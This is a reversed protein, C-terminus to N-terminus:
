SQEGNYNSARNGRALFESVILLEDIYVNPKRDHSEFACETMLKALGKLLDNDTKRNKSQQKFQYVLNTEIMEKVQTSSDNEFFSQDPLKHIWDRILYTARRSLTGDAIYEALQLLIYISSDQLKKYQNKENRRFWKSTFYSTGGSRKMVAISYSDRGANKARKEAARLEILVKNLPTMHHAIVAGCSATAKEGMARYLQRNKKDFVFGNRFAIQKSLSAFQSKNWANDNYELSYRDNSMMKEDGPFMGSYVMRLATMAPLLDAVPLMAMVDDGGAYILKGGYFEEVVQRVLGLAFGNLAASIAMHRGPSSPRQSEAYASVSENHAFLNKIKPHWADKYPMTYSDGEGSLWAGMNDGDLLLMAYYTEVNNGSAKKIKQKIADIKQDSNEQDRLDDMYAPLSRIVSKTFSSTKGLSRSLRIPLAASSTSADVESWDESRLDKQALNALNSEMAMTHTSVVFRGSFENEGIIQKAQNLVLTPWLRKTSCIVCLHEDKGAWSPQKKHLDNWITLKDKRQGSSLQLQTLDDTLWEREGCLSCRYGKEVSQHFQKEMKTSAQVRDLLDYIAPYLVGANPKYFRHGDIKLEGKLLSWAHSTLFNKSNEPMMSNIAHELDTIDLSDKQQKILEWSLSSWQVEPFDKLQQKLQFLSTENEVSKGLKEAIAKLAKKGQLMMWEKVGAEIKRAIEEAQDAPVIAVFRNPIAASFIPNADTREKKHACNGFLISDLGIENELWLDVEPLGRLQPFIVADPGYENCIVKLGQWAISSLLHSGAWLDSSTRAQAIFGQVPGFSMTLLAPTNSKDLAMSTAFASTLDLHQWITHDPVRTDAPALKWFLGLSEPANEQAFRWFALATKQHDVAGDKHVILKNFLEFSDAKIETIDTESLSNINISDGTLPHIIVPNKHFRVQDAFRNELSQPWQPRDAASAWHDAKKVVVEMETLESETFLVSRLARTTGGEHGARDRLLVWPKEGPDHIWAALKFKWSNM